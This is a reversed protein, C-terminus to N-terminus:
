ELEAGTYSCGDHSGKCGDRCLEVLVLPLDQEYGAVRESDFRLTM